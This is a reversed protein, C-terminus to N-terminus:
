THTHTHTHTLSLFLILFFSLGHSAIALYVCACGIVCSRRVLPICLAVVLSVIGAARCTSGTVWRALKFYSSTHMAVIDPPPPFSLDTGTGRRSRIPPTEVTLSGKRPTFVSPITSLLGENVAATDTDDDGCQCRLCRGVAALCPEVLSFDAFFDPFILLMAPTLTLNVVISTVAGLTAGLGITQLFSFPFFILAVLTVSLTLGSILVVRGAARTMIRVAQVTTSGAQIEQRFRSLLFLSYDISLAIIISAMISPAFAVIDWYHAIPVMLAFSVLISTILTLLPIIMLRLSRLVILLVLLAFPFVYVEHHTLDRNSGTLVDAFLVDLGTVGIQLGVASQNRAQRASSELILEDQLQGILSTLM